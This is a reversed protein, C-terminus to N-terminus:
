NKIKSNGHGIKFIKIYILNIMQSMSSLFFNLFQFFRMYLNVTKDALYKNTHYAM